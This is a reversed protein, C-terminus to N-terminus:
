SYCARARDIALGCPSRLNADNRLTRAGAIHHADRVLSLQEVRDCASKSEFLQTARLVRAIRRVLLTFPIARVM